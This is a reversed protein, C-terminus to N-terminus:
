IIEQTMTAIVKWWAQLNPIKEVKQMKQIYGNDKKSV